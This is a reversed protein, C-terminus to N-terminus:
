NNSFGGESKNEFLGLLPSGSLHAAAKVMWVAFALFEDPTFRVPRPKGYDVHVHGAPCQQVSNGGTGKALTQWEKDM